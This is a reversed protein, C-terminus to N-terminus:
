SKFGIETARVRNKAPAAGHAYADEVTDNRAYEGKGPIGWGSRLFDLVRQKPESFNADVHALNVAAKYTLERGEPSTVLDMQEELNVAEDMVTQLSAGEPLTVGKMNFELTKVGQKEPVGDAKILHSLIRLRALSEIPSLIYMTM